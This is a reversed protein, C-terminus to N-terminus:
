AAKGNTPKAEMRRWIKWAALAAKFDEITYEEPVRKVEPEGGEKPLRVIVGYASPMKMRKAMHRYAVNQLFAEPYIRNGTKWDLLFKRGKRDEGYFDMTGAVGLEDDHLTRETGLPTIGESKFWDRCSEYCARAEGELVPKEGVHLGLKKRLVWEIAAHAQNGINVAKELTEKAAQKNALILKAAQKGTKCGAAILADKERQQKAYWFQLAPKNFVSLVTTVSPYQQDNINYFRAEDKFAV